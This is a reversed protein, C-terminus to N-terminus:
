LKTGAYLDDLPVEAPVSSLALVGETVDEVTWREGERRWVQVARRDQRVLAIEGISPVARYVDLKDGRDYAETRESLVEVVLAPNVLTTEKPSTFELAGCAASVDPYTYRGGAEVQVRLDSSFVACDTGRFAAHLAVYANGAIVDHTRTGGSMPFVEGHIYEHKEEQIEEWDFYEEPTLRLSVPELTAHMAAATPRSLM